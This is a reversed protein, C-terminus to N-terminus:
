DPDTSNLDIGAEQVDDAGVMLSVIEDPSTQDVMREGVKKGRRLVVIRTAVAFVDQMNHTIIIVPVGQDCLTRVLRLVKRQEPVGLAATPEDMIMLKANWYISRAIAVAQRQGGSLNLVQQTLSPLHINLRDLAKVAEERMKTRDVTKIIGGLYSRLIERGLFINSGVDLNEALALDQYITEIGKDRADRPSIFDLKQGDFFIEGDDPKYVGSVMKILTSKGAGNDGLIGVVEGVNVDLSVSNVATLGGFRKTLNNVRLLNKM